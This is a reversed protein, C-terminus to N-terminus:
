LKLLGASNEYCIMHELEKDGNCAEKIARIATTRKAWPWDSGFLVRDPGFATILQKIIQPHQFSIEVYINNFEPLMELVHTVQLLGSHGVVFTVNPFAAILDRAYHIDGYEPNEKYNEKKLYYAAVGGHFLVPLDHPAFAEVAEFTRKSNLPENQIIPHLKMGKAGSAVDGRMAAELDYDQRPDFSTFPIVGNDQEQAKKLDDFTVHPLIPLCVTKWIGAQDMSTRMNELSGLANNALFGRIMLPEFFPLRDLFGLSKWTRSELINTPSLVFKKRVGKRFILEGGGPYLIDGIHSHTDIIKQM